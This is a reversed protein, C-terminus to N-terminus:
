KSIFKQVNEAYSQARLTVKGRPSPAPSTAACTNHQRRGEQTDLPEHQTVKSCSTVTLAESLLQCHNLPICHSIQSSSLIEPIFETAKDLSHSGFSNLEEKPLAQLLKSVNLCAKGYM